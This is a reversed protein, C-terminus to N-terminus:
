PLVVDLSQSVPSGPVDATITGTAKVESIYGTNESQEANVYWQSEFLARPEYITGALAAVNRVPGRDFCSVGVDGLAQRVSPLSLAQRVAQLVSSPSLVGAEQGITGFCQVTLGFQGRELETIEIEQGASAGINAWVYGDGAGGPAVTSTSGGATTVQWLTAANIAEDGVAYITGSLWAPVTLQHEEDRSGLAVIDGMRLKLFMAEPASASAGSSAAAGEWLVHQADIAPNVKAAATLVWGVLANQVDDLTM